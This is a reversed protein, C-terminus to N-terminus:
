NSRAPLDAPNVPKPPTYKTVGLGYAQNPSPTMYGTPPATLSTRPPEGTFPATEEKNGGVGWISGFLGGTYGLVSPLVPRNSAAESESASDGPRTSTATTPARGANLESPTLPRGPDDWLKTERANMPTTKKKTVRIKKEPDSPWNTAPKPAEAEPPPLTRDPPIVLPSREHYDIGNGTGALGIGNLMNRIFKQEFSLDDDEDDDQAFAHGCHAVLLAAGFVAYAVARLSGTWAGRFYAQRLRAQPM